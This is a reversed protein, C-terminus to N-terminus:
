GYQRALRAAISAACLMGGDEIGDEDQDRISM